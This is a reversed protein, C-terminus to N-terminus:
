VYHVHDLGDTDVVLMTKREPFPRWNGSPTTSHPAITERCPACSIKCSGGRLAHLFLWLGSVSWASFHTVEGHVGQKLSHTCLINFDWLLFDM